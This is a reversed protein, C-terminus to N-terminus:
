TFNYCLKVSFALPIRCYFHMSFLACSFCPASIHFCIYLVARGLRDQSLIIPFRDYYFAKSFMTNTGIINNSNQSRFIFSFKHFYLLVSLSIGYFIKTSQM